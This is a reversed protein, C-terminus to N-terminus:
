VTVLVIGTASIWLRLSPKMTRPDVCIHEARMRTLTKIKARGMDVVCTTILPSVPTDIMKRWATFASIVQNIRSIQRQTKAGIIPMSSAIKKCFRISFCM